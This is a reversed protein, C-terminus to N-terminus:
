LHRCCSAPQITIKGSTNGFLGLTGLTTANIGLSLAGSSITANANGSIATTSTAYYGLQGATGSNVTGSGGGGGAPVQWTGDAKLFKAAAADGSAPAPVLGVAGGAGSDGTFNSIQLASGSFNFYSALTCAQLSATSGGPVCPFTHTPQTSLLTLPWPPRPVSKTQANADAAFLLFAALIAAATGINKWSV